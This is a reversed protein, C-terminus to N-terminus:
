STTSSPTATPTTLWALRRYSDLRDGLDHTNLTLMLEDAETVAVLGGLAKAVSEGTGHIQGRRAQQFYRETRETREKALVETAPILPPFVGQTRSQTMAWAEPIQLLEAERTTAGVAANVAVVVYPRAAWSSPVFAARYRAVTAAITEQDPGGIVVPLGLRGAISAGEGTALVFPPVRQGEAPLASVPRVGDFYGLLETLRAEFDMAASRDAGLARRVAETFGVSRGLGMDIRGPYLAELVGFQEAVVLPQHNPLMVGATGLRIRSTAAGIASALVTPASGAVGPVGHHESVWFRHYGLAEVERAFTVTDRLAQGPRQGERVLSRDLVSLRVSSLRERWSVPRADTLTM